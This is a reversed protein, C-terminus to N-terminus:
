AHGFDLVLDALDLLVALFVDDEGFDVFFYLTEFFYDPVGDAFDVVFLLLLEDGFDGVVVRGGVVVM